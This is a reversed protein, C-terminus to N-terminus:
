ERDSKASLPNQNQDQILPRRRLPDQPGQQLVVRCNAQLELIQGRRDRLAEAAVETQCGGRGDSLGRQRKNQLEVAEEKSLRRMTM